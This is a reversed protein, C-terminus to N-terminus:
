VSSPQEEDVKWFIKVEDKLCLDQSECVKPEEHKGSLPHIQKKEPIHVNDTFNKLVSSSVEIIRSKESGEQEVTKSLHKVHCIELFNTHDDKIDVKHKFVCTIPTSKMFTKHLYMNHPIHKMAKAVQQVQNFKHAIRFMRETCRAIYKAENIYRLYSTIRSDQLRNYYDFEEMANQRDNQQLLEKQAEKLAQGWRQTRTVISNIISKDVPLPEFEIAEFFCKIEEWCEGFKLGLFNEALVLTIQDEVRLDEDNFTKYSENTIEVISQYRENMLSLLAYIKPRSSAFLDATAALEFNKKGFMLDYQMKGMLPHDPDGIIGSAETKVQLLKNEVRFIEMLLPILTIGKKGKWTLMYPICKGESFDCMDVLTGLTIIKVSMPFAQLIDLMVYVGNKEIFLQCINEYKYIVNWIFDMVNVAIRNDYIPEAPLPYLLRNMMAITVNVVETKELSSTANMFLLSLISFIEELCLEIKKDFVPMEMFKKCLDLLISDGQNFMVAKLIFKTTDSKLVCRMTDLCNLCVAKGLPTMNINKLFTLLVVAGSNEIFEEQLFPVMKNFIKFTLIEIISTHENPMEGIKGHSVLALTRTIIRCKELVFLGHPFNVYLPLCFLFTKIFYYGNESEINNRKRILNMSRICITHGDVILGEALGSSTFEMKPFMDLFCLIVTLLYNRVTGWDTVVTIHHFLFKINWLSFRSIIPVENLVVRNKKLYNLIYIALNLQIEIHNIVPKEAMNPHVHPIRARWTGEMRALLANLADNKALDECIEPCTSAFKIIFELVDPFVEDNILFLAQGLLGALRGSAAEKRRIKLPFQSKYTSPVELLCKTTELICRQIETNDILILLYGLVSFFERLDTSYRNVDSSVKLYMPIKCINLVHKVIDSFAPTVVCKECCIELLRMINALDSAYIGYQSLALFKYMMDLIRQVDNKTIECELLLVIKNLLYSTERCTCVTSNPDM